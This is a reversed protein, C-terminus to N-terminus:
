EPAYNFYAGDLSLLWLIFADLFHPASWILTAVATAVIITNILINPM